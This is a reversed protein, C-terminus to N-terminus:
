CKKDLGIINLGPSGGRVNGSRGLWHSGGPAIVAVYEGPVQNVKRYKGYDTKLGRSSLQAPTALSLSQVSFKVKEGDATTITGSTEGSQEATADLKNGDTSTGKYRFNEDLTVEYIGAGDIAPYASFSARKGDADTFSGQVRRESVYSLVLEERGGASTLTADSGRKRTAALDLPGVFWLAKGDPEGRGDCLYARVKSKGTGDPRDVEIAVAAVDATGLLWGFYVSTKSGSKKEADEDDDGCAVVVGACLLASVVLVLIRRM